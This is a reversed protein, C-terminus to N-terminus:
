YKLSFELLKMLHILLMYLLLIIMVRKTISEIGVEIKANDEVQTSYGGTNGDLISSIIGFLLSNSFIFIMILVKIKNM